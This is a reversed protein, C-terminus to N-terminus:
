LRPYYGKSVKQHGALFEAVRHASANQREVRLALTALGRIVLWAGFPDATAGFIRVQRKARKIFEARGVIVGATVDHHGGLYKTARHVWVDAVAAWPTQNYPTPWTM